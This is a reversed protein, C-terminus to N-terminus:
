RIRGSDAPDSKNIQFGAIFSSILMYGPTISRIQITLMEGRKDVLIGAANCNRKVRLRIVHSIAIGICQFLIWAGSERQGM